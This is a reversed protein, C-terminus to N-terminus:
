KLFDAMLRAGAIVEERTGDQPYDDGTSKMNNYALHYRFNTEKYPKYEFIAEYGTYRNTKDINGGITEESSIFGIRPTWFEWGTYSVKAVLSNVSDKYGTADAKFENMLYDVTIRVPASDWLLGITTFQHKDDKSAGPLFHYSLNFGLSKELFLSRYVIGFMNSNQEKPEGAKKDPEDTAMIHLLQEGHTFTAKAGTLYLLESTSLLNPSRGSARYFQSLMYLDAGSTGGEFGGFDTNFKGATLSFHDNFKQTLYALEIGQHVEDVQRSTDKNFTWRVRFSIDENAKGIYDLRGTKFYFRTQDPTNLDTNTVSSYDARMDLNLSGAHSASSLLLLGLVCNFINKM